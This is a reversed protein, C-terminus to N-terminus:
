SILQRTSLIRSPSTTRTLSSGLFGSIGLEVRTRTKCGCVSAAARISCGQAVAHVKRTGAVAFTDADHSHRWFCSDNLTPVRSARIVVRRAGLEFQSELAGIPLDQSAEFTKKPHM